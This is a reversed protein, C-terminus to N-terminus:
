LVAASGGGSQSASASPAADAIKAIKPTEAALPKSKEADKASGSELHRVGGELRAGSEIELSKHAIDATVKASRALVISTARIEGSVKGCVRIRECTITGNVEANEGVTLSKSDVNGDIKGDIQIDGNSHLNGTIRLDASIISPTASIPQSAGGSSPASIVTDSKTKTDKSFM